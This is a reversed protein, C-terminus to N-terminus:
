ETEKCSSKSHVVISMEVLAQREVQGCFVYAACGESWGAVSLEMPHAASFDECEPGTFSDSDLRCCGSVAVSFVSLWRGSDSRYILHAGPRDGISCVDGGAFYFGWQELSPASVNLNLQETLRTKVTALDNGIQPNNHGHGVNCCLNHRQRADAAFQFAVAQNTGAPQNTETEKPLFDWIALAAMVAAAISLPILLRQLLRARWSQEGREVPLAKRVRAALVASAKEQGFVRGLAGKIQQVEAVRRACEPCMNIHALAQVNLETDLEGDAFAGV